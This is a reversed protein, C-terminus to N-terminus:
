LVSRMDAPRVENAQDFPIHGRLVARTADVRESPDHQGSVEAVCEADALTVHEVDAHLVPVQDEGAVLRLADEAARTVIQPLAGSTV